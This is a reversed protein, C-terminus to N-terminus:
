AVKLMNTLMILQNDGRRLWAVLRQKACPVHHVSCVTQYVEDLLVFVEYREQNCQKATFKPRKVAPAMFMKDLSTCM